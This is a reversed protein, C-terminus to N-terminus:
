ELPLTLKMQGEQLAVPKGDFSLQVEKTHGLRISFPGEGSWNWAVSQPIFGEFSKDKANVRLWLPFPSFIDLRHTLPAIPKAEETKQAVTPVSAAPPPTTQNQSVTAPSVPKVSSGQDTKLVKLFGIIVLVGLFGWIFHSRRFEASTDSPTPAKAEVPSECLALYPAILKDGDLGLYNAYRRIFGRVFVEGPLESWTGGELAELYPLRIKIVQSVKELSLSRATRRERLAQGIKEIVEGKSLPATIESKTETESM